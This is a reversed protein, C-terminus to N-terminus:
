EAPPAMLRDRRLLVLVWGGLLIDVVGCFLPWWAPVVPNTVVSSHVLDYVGHATLGAAMLWGATRVTGWRAAAVAIVIFGAAIASEIGIKRPTGAMAAFLVYGLAIVILVSSYFSLSRGQRTAYGLAVIAITAILGAIIEM